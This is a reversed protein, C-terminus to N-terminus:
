RQGSLGATGGGVEGEGCGGATELGEFLAAFPQPEAARAAAPLAHRWYSCAVLAADGAM